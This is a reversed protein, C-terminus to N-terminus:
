AARSYRDVYGATALGKIFQGMKTKNKFIRIGFFASGDKHTQVGDHFNVVYKARGISEQIYYQKVRYGWLYSFGIGRTEICGITEGTSEGGMARLGPL